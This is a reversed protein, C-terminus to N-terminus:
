IHEHNEDELDKIRHNIVKLKEDQVKNDQELQYTREILNNHKSVKDELQRIRYNTLRSNTVIGLLSGIASGSLGLLAVLIDSSM